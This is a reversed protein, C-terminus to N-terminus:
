ATRELFAQKSVAKSKQFANGMGAANALLIRDFPDIRVMESSADLCLAEEDMFWSRSVTGDM